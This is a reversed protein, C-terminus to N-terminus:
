VTSSLCTLSFRQSSGSVVICLVACCLVACCLVVRCVAPASHAALPPHSPVSSHTRAAPAPDSLLSAPTRCYATLERSPRVQVRAPQAHGSWEGGAGSGARRQRRGRRHATRGGGRHVSQGGQRRHGPVRGVSPVGGCDGFRGRGCLRLQWGRRFPLPPSLSLCASHASQISPRPSSHTHAHSHKHACPGGFSQVFEWGALLAPVSSSRSHSRSHSHPLAADCLLSLPLLSAATSDGERREAAGSEAEAEASDSGHETRATASDVIPLELAVSSLPPPTAVYGPAASHPGLSSASSAPQGFTATNPEDAALAPRASAAAADPSPHQSRHHALHESAPQLEYWVAAYRFSGSAQSASGTGHSADSSHRADHPQPATCARIIQQQLLFNGWVVADRTSRAAKTRKLWRVLESGLFVGGGVVFARHSAVQPISSSLSDGDSLALPPEASAPPQRDSLRRREREQKQNYHKCLAAVVDAHATSHLCLREIDAESAREYGSYECGFAYLSGLSSYFPASPACAPLVARERLMSRCLLLASVPRDVVGSQLLWRVACEGSFLAAGVGVGSAHASAHCCRCLRSATPEACQRQVSLEDGKLGCMREVIRSLKVSSVGDLAPPTPPTSATATATATATVLPQRQAASQQQAQFCEVGIQASSSLAALLAGRLAFM